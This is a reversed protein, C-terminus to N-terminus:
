FMDFGLVDVPTCVRQVSPNQQNGMEAVPAIRYHQQFPKGAALQYEYREPPSAFSEGQANSFGLLQFM